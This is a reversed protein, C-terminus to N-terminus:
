SCREGEKFKLLFVYDEMGTLFSSGCKVLLFDCFNERGKIHTCFTEFFFKEFGM